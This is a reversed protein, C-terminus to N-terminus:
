EYPRIEPLDPSPPLKPTVTGSELSTDVAPLDSTEPSLGNGPPLVLPEALPATELYGEIPPRIQRAVELNVRATPSIPIENLTGRGDKAAALAGHSFGDFWAHIMCRGAPTEYCPKWYVQPPLTPQCGTGGDLINRYGAKFGRAFHQPYNVHSYCLSWDCWANHALTHNRVSTECSIMADMVSSCGSLSSSSLIMLIALPLRAM